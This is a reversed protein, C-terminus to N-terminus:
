HEVRDVGVEEPIVIPFEIKIVRINATAEFHHNLAHCIREFFFAFRLEQKLWGFRPFCLASM